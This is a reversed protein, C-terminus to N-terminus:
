AEKKNLLEFADGLTSGDDIEWLCELLAAMEYKIRTKNGEIGVTTDVVAKGNAEVRKFLITADIM